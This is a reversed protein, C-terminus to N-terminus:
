VDVLRARLGPDMRWGPRMTEALAPVGAALEALPPVDMGELCDERVFFANVGARELYVLRYGKARGLKEFAAVSAGLFAPDGARDWQFAPDYPMSVAEETGMYVRYEVCVVRPEVVTLARWVWYDNGDIDVSLFDIPGSLEAGIQANVSEATIFARRVKIGRTALARARLTAASPSGDLLLGQWGHAALEISNNQGFHFGFECFRRDTTGILGFLGLLIGDEGNQSTAKAECASLGRLDSIRRASLKPTSYLRLVRQGRPSLRAVRDLAGHRLQALRAGM